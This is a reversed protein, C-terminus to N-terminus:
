RIKCYARQGKFENMQSLLFKRDEKDFNENIYQLCERKKSFYKAYKGDPQICAWMKGGVVDSLGAYVRGKKFEM